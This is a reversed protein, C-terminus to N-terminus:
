STHVVECHAPLLWQNRLIARAQNDAANARVLMLVLAFALIKKM